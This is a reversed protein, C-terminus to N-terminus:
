LSKALLETASDVLRWVHDFGAADGYYPDPVSQGEHGQLYDLLLSLKARSGVPALAELDRLNSPDMAIIQDFSDFDNRQVQRAKLDSIDIGGLRKAVDQARPDPAHGIHWDGTGASDIEVDLGLKQAHQRMAAEALPSRCINGLCIFLVSLKPAYEPQAM